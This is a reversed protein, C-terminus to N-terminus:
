ALNEESNSGTSENNDQADDVDLTDNVHKQIGYDNDEGNTEEYGCNQCITNENAMVTNCIPCLHPSVINNKDLLDGDDAVDNKRRWM